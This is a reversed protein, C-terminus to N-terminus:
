AAGGSKSVYKMRVEYLLGQVMHEEEATLNGKTKSVLMDMTDILYKAQRLDPDTKIKESAPDQIEGLAVLAQMGLTSMFFPFNPEPPGSPSPEAPEAGKEKEVSNKWSEDVHKKVVPDESNQPDRAM